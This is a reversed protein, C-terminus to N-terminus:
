FYRRVGFSLAASPIKRHYNTMTLFYIDFDVGIHTDRPVCQSGIGLTVGSYSRKLDERLDFYVVSNTGYFCSVRPRFLHDPSLLSYRLGAEYGVHAFITSGIGASVTVNDVAHLDANLGLIGYPIGLGAGVSNMERRNDAPEMEQGAARLSALMTVALLMARVGTM